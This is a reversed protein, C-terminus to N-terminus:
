KILRGTFRTNGGLSLIDVSVDTNVVAEVTDGAELMIDLSGTLTNFKAGNDLFSFRYETNLTSSRSSVVRLGVWAKNVTKAGIYVCVKFDYLGGVPATFIGTSNSYGNGENYEVYNCLLSETGIVPRATTRRAGFAVINNFKDVTQDIENASKTPKGELNGWNVTLNVPLRNWRGGEYFVWDEQQFTIDGTGFNRVGQNTVVYYDGEQGTGNVLQPSNTSANWTGKRVFNFGNSLNDLKDKYDNTFANTDPNSEYYSKVQAPTIEASMSSDLEWDSSNSSWVYWLRSEGESVIAADGVNGVPHTAKLGVLGDFHWGKFHGSELQSLKQKEAETFNTDSLTKGPVKDVKQNMLQPLDSITSALQTGTHTSRDRVQSASGAPDAGVDESTLTINEGTKNNVSVVTGIGGSATSSIVNDQIVINDGAVLKDQKSEFISLFRKPLHYWNFNQKKM